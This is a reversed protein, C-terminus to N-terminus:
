QPMLTNQMSNKASFAVFLSLFCIPHAVITNEFFGIMLFCLFAALADRTLVDNKVSDFLVFLHRNLILLLAVAIFCGYFIFLCLVSNHLENKEFSELVFDSGYGWFPKEVLMTLAEAWIYQRGSFASKDDSVLSTYQQLDFATLYMWVYLNIWLFSGFTLLICLVRFVFKSQFIQKGLFKCVVFFLFGLLCSRSDSILLNPIIFGLILLCSLYASITKPYVFILLYIGCVTWIFGISNSNITSKGIFFFYLSFVIFVIIIVFKMRVTLVFLPAILLQLTLMCLPMLAGTKRFFSSAITIIFIIMVLFLLSKDHIIESCLSKAFLIYCFLYFLYLFTNPSLNASNTSLMAFYFFSVLLAALTWQSAVIRNVKLM